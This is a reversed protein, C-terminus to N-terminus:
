CGLKPRQTATGIGIAIVAVALYAILAWRGRTNTQSM